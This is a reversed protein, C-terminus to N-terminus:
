RVNIDWYVDTAQIQQKITPNVHSVKTVDMLRNALWYIDEVRFPIFSGYDKSVRDHLQVGHWKGNVYFDVSLDGNPMNIYCRVLWRTGRSVPVLKRHAISAQADILEDIDKYHYMTTATFLTRLGTRYRTLIEGTRDVVEFCDENFAYLLGNSDVQSGIDSQFEYRMSSINYVPSLIEAGHEHEHEHTGLYYAHTWFMNYDLMGAEEQEAGRTHIIVWPGSHKINTLQHNGNCRLKIGLYDLLKDNDRMRYVHVIPLPKQTHVCLLSELYIHSM